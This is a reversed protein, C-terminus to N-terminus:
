LYPQFITGSRHLSNTVPQSECLIKRHDALTPDSNSRLPVSRMDRETDSPSLQQQYRQEYPYPYQYYHPYYYDFALRPYYPIGSPMTHYPNIRVSYSNYSPNLCYFPNKQLYYRNNDYSSYFGPLASMMQYRDAAPEPLSPTRKIDTAELSTSSSPTKGGNDDDADDDIIILPSPPPSESQHKQSSVEMEEANLRKRKCRAQGNERFGKAFPNNDIKLQRVKDNQLNLFLNITKTEYKILVTM